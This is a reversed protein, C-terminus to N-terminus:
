GRMMGAYGVILDHMNHSLAALNYAFNTSDISNWVDLLALLAQELFIM